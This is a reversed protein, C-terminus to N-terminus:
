DRHSTNENEWGTLPPPITLQRAWLQCKYHNYVWRTSNTPDNPYLKEHIRMALAELKSSM